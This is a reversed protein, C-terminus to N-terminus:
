IMLNFIMGKTDKVIVLQDRINPMNFLQNINTSKQVYKNENKMYVMNRVEDAM